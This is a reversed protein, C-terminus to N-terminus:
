PPTIWFNYPGTIIPAQDCPPVGPDKVFFYTRFITLDLAQVRWLTTKRHGLDACIGNPIAALEPDKKFFAARFLALDLSQVRWLTTKKGNIDGRCQYKYCWCNPYGWAVWDAYEPPGANGGILCEQTTLEFAMDWSGELNMIPEGAEFPQGIVPATPQWIRIADDNFFHPRTKWGWYWMEPQVEYVAAISIWYIANENPDQWFWNADPLQLNYKFCTDPPYQPHVDFGVFQEDVENMDALYEWIMMGPHSWPQDVGAPVDTWIGIHFGMLPFPSPMPETWGYYSGWWHVDTVPRQDNCPWDDAVIQMWGYISPEDWGYYEGPGLEEPPQSWKYLVEEEEEITVEHDEVEGDLALGTPSGTGQSSIRCRAFTQGVVSGIPATVPIASLGSGLMGGFVLEGADNWSGNGNFDIWLEVFGGLGTPEYVEIIIYAPIGQTLTPITVGDEDDNGDNDDGLAQPDPQGDGEPDPMDDALGLWLLGGIIHRAGDNALLTPYPPDNADGFDLEEVPQEADPDTFLIFSMDASAETRDFVEYWQWQEGDEIIPWGFVADDNYVHEHLTWGWQYEPYHEVYAAVIMLWYVAEDEEQWFWEDEPLRVSYRFVSEYGLQEPIPIEPHKDYGVLVEDYDYANYDWIMEGPHSYSGAVNPDAPVDTWISIWFYAPPEPRMTPGHCPIYTYGLYSGWWALATIPRNSDCPWDDAVAQLWDLGEPWLVMESPVDEYHPWQRIGCYYQEWKIYNPDTDLEFTMDMSEGYPDEIPWMWNNYPDVILGPEFPENVEFVIADDMWSWPRTKWGWPYEIFEEGPEYVAAISMWFVSDQTLDNFDFQWFWEEPELQLNYQFCVDNPFYYHYFDTGVENIDVRNADVEIQWLLVEPYSFGPELPSAPVNSWFCIKWGIPLIDPMTGPYIWDWYSGWWHVSTIPMTGLCRFDDAVIHWYQPEVPDRLSIEDWGCYEPITSTPDIEIPPQSWKSHEILQKKEERGEGTIMFALDMSMGEFPHGYGYPYILEEWGMFGPWVADDNWHDLSTKWGFYAEDHPMAGVLLWYVVPEEPTGQQIFAECPDIYFDYKYCKTDGFPEYMECPMYYGEYLDQAYLSATFTGQPFFRGWLFENPESWGSPGMPNDSWIEIFFDMATPDGLPLYDNFWSGWIHVDLIPGSTTCRFDDAAPGCWTIDVDVGTDNLDPLQEWKIGPEPEEEDSTIVFALDMSMGEFQHGYGYPYILEEWGMFGSWVADDNWHDLSTKWGFNTMGDYPMAGVLLWYVVPESPTGQQIFAECPDIYFDYKWCMSDGYPEYMECPMYYGEYLDQAYLSANFEGQSFLRGWLFENPESWGSPGMPNDSWIEIFIDMATPDGFPMSDYLWSGWIHVDLIPGSTTCLFDDAAPGCMSIDVDIGTDDLDPLQPYHMKHGDGPNWDGLAVSAGVFLTLVCVLLLKLKFDKM